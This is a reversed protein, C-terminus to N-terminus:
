KVKGKNKAVGHLWTYDSLSSVTLYWSGDCNQGTVKSNISLDELLCKIEELADKNMLKIRLRDNSEEHYGEDRIFSRLWERKIERSSEKIKAPLSFNKSDLEGFEAELFDVLRISKVRIRNEYVTGKVDFESELDERFEEINEENYNTYMVEARRNRDGESTEYRSINGDGCVRAHIRALSVNM